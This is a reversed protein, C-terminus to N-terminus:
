NSLREWRNLDSATSVALSTLSAALDGPQLWPTFSFKLHVLVWVIKRFRDNMMRVILVLIGGVSPIRNRFSNLNSYGRFELETRVVHLNLHFDLKEYM